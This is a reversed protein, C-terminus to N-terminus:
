ILTNDNYFAGVPFMDGATDFDFFYYSLAHGGWNASYSENSILTFNKNITQLTAESQGWYDDGLMVLFSYTPDFRLM